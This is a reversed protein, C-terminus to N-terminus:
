EVYRASSPDNKEAASKMLAEEKTKQNGKYWAQNALLDTLILQGAVVNGSEKDKTETYELKLTGFVKSVGVPLEDATYVEQYGDSYTVTVGQLLQIDVGEGKKKNQYESLEAPLTFTFVTYQDAGNASNCEFPEYTRVEINTVIGHDPLRVVKSTFTRESKKGESDRFVLVQEKQLYFGGEKYAKEFTEKDKAPVAITLESVPKKSFMGYDGKSKEADGKSLGFFQVGPFLTSTLIVKKPLIWAVKPNEIGRAKLERIVQNRSCEPASALYAGDYIYYGGDVKPANPISPVPLEDANLKEPIRVIWPYDVYYITEGTTSSTWVNIVGGSYEDILRMYPEKSWDLYINNGGVNEAPPTDIGETHVCLSVGAGLLFAMMINKINM